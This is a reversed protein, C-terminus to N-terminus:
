PGCLSINSSIGQSRNVFTVSIYIYIYIYVYIYIYKEKEKIGVKVTMFVTGNRSVLKERKKKKQFILNRLLPRVLIHKHVVIKIVLVM